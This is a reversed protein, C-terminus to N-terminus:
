SVASVIVPTGQRGAVVSPAIPTSSGGGGGDGSGLCSLGALPGTGRAGKGQGAAQAVLQLYATVQMRQDASLASLVTQRAAATRAARLQAVADKIATPVPPVTPRPGTTAPAACTGTAPIVLATGDVPQPTAGAASGGAVPPRLPASSPRTDAAVVLASVGCVCLSGAAGAVKLTTAGLKM